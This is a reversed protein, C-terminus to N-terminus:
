VMRIYDQLTFYLDDVSHLVHRQYPDEIMEAVGEPENAGRVCSRLFVIFSNTMLVCNTRLYEADIRVMISHSPAFQVGKNMRNLSM